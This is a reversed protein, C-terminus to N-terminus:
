PCNSSHAAESNSARHCKDCKIDEQTFIHSCNKVLSYFDFWKITGSHHSVDCNICGGSSPLYKPWLILKQLNTHTYFRASSVQNVSWPRFGLWAGRHSCVGRTILTGPKWARPWMQEPDPRSADEAALSFSDPNINELCRKPKTWVRTQSSSLTQFNLRRTNPSSQGKRM